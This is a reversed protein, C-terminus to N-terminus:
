VAQVSERGMHHAYSARISLPKGSPTTFNADAVIWGSSDPYEQWGPAILGDSVARVQDYEDKLACLLLVAIKRHEMPKM